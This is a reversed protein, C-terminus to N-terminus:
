FWRVRHFVFSIYIKTQTFMSLPCVAMSRKPNGNLNLRRDLPMPRHVANYLSFACRCIVSELYECECAHCHKIHTLSLESIIYLGKAQVPIKQRRRRCM